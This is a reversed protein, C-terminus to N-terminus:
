QLVVCCGDMDIFHLAKELVLAFYGSGSDLYKQRIPVPLLLISFLLNGTEYVKRLYVAVFFLLAKYDYDKM